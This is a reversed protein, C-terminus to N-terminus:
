CCKACSEAKTYGRRKAHIIAQEENDWDGLSMYFSTPRNSCVSTHVGNKKNPNKTTDLILLYEM